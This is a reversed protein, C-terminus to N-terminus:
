SPKVLFHARRNNARCEESTDSCSLKEKGYSITALRSGPIGQAMLFDRTAQARRQGLALNYETTGRDDCHGEVLVATGPHSKLWAANAMLVTAADPRIAHKDFDFYIDKLADSPSYDSPSPRQAGVLPAAPTPAPTAEASSGAGERPTSEGESPARPAPAVAVPARTPAGARTAQYDVAKKACGAWLVPVALMIVVSVRSQWCAM